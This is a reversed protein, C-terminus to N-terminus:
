ERNEPEGYGETRSYPIMKNRHYLRTNRTKDNNVKIAFVSSSRIEVIELPGIRIKDLKERNLKNGNEVFVLEGVKFDYIPGKPKLREKNREHDKLTNVYAIKRDKKFDNQERIEIPVTEPMKGYMLYSPAFGTVSHVTDNYENVCKQAIVAWNKRKKSDENMRCRIRNMLTQNLRENLGNSEASDVATIIHETKKERLYDEFKNSCLGGYQDTLLVEVHNEKNVKETIRIFDEACQSPSTLIWAYRTAHDVLLHMYKKTSRKGGAGGITDLSMIEYPEKAPGLHGLYGKEVRIRTKNCICTECSTCIQSIHKTMGQFYYYPNLINKVHKSGIHGYKEHTKRILKRGLEETILIKWKEDKTKVYKLNYKEVIRKHKNLDLNTQDNSIEELTVINVVKIRDNLQNEHPELVPNRSLCDAEVNTPGPKYIVQFDFQLLNHLLDGLEEDTRAKIKLNELPKHDSFVTFRKGMLWYQWFKIAERIAICEIYITKKKKQYENLKRSFYAVPKETGDEQPQKLVAGIGEISADTYINIPKERDFIALIPTSSLYNKVKDFSEQCKKSWAFEVNKRLLNHLPDLVRTANPIYKLYFNVKGLFQRVNKRTKPIPFNKIAITNNTLPRVTDSGVVHGLYTVRDKAFECKTFKLRFGEEIIAQLLKEIHMIHEEFTKSFVLIDDIYNVCFGGLKRNKIIGSLIRQFIAPANKYGFPM